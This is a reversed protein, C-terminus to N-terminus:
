EFSIHFFTEFSLILWNYRCFKPRTEAHIKFLRAGFHEQLVQTLHWLLMKKLNNVKSTIKLCKKLDSSLCRRLCSKKLFNLYSSM